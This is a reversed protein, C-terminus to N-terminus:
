FAASRTLLYFVRQASLISESSIDLSSLEELIRQREELTDSVTWEFEKRRRVKSLGECVLSAQVGVEYDRLFADIIYFLIACGLLVSGSKFIVRDIGDSIGNIYIMLILSSLMLVVTAFKLGYYRRMRNKSQATLEDIARSLQVMIREYLLTIVEKKADKETMPEQKGGDTNEDRISIMGGQPTSFENRPPEVYDPYKDKESTESM